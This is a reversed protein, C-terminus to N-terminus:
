FFLGPAGEGKWPRDLDTLKDTWKDLKLKRRKADIMWLGIGCGADNGILSPYVVDKTQVAIGVPGGKGPHEGLPRGAVFPHLDFGLGVRTM